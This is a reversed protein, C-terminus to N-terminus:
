ADRLKTMVEFLHGNPDIFFLGRGGFPHDTRINTAERPDNGYPVGAAQLRSLIGDFDDEGIYFGLHYGAVQEVQMFAITFTENVRVPAFHRDPGAYTVGMIQAFFRASAEHDYAPMAVHDLTISM